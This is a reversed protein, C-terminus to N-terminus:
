RNEKKLDSGPRHTTGRLVDPVHTITPLFGHLFFGLYPLVVASVSLILGLLHKFYGQKPEGKLYWATTLSLWQWSPLWPLYPPLYHMLVLSLDFVVGALEFGMLCLGPDRSRLSSDLFGFLKRAYDFFEKTLIMNGKQNM